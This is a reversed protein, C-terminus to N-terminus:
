QLQHSVNFVEAGRFSLRECGEFHVAMRFSVVDFRPQKACVKLASVEFVLFVSNAGFCKHIRNSHQFPLSKEPAILVFDEISYSLAVPTDVDVKASLIPAVILDCIYASM